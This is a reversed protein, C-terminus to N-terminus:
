SWFGQAKIQSSSYGQQKLLKRLQVVMTHNGTIYFIVDDLTYHQNLVWQMLSNHGYEDKYLITQLPSKFYESFLKRHKDNNMVMAGGFRTHPLTMQQLALLHGMSSEDGLAIVSKVSDPKQQSSGTKLYSITDYQKLNRAWICGPGNHATDVFLTCTHTEADWCSPTYDRYTLADVRFKIYPVEAWTLMDLQPLHLDIEIITGPQWSRVELVRGTQLLNHEILKGARKKIQNISFIEM